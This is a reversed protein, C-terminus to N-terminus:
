KANTFNGNNQCKLASASVIKAVKRPEKVLTNPCQMETWSIPVMPAVETGGESAVAVVVGLENEATSLEYCSLEIRPLVKALIIDGPRYCKYMEVRDKETARVDEKRLMARYSQELVHAGISQISCKAFRQNVQLIRATVVDGALPVITRNGAGEVEIIKCSDKEKLIVSGALTAYIYGKREYTGHGAATKEDSLCLRQGPLCILNSYKMNKSSLTM